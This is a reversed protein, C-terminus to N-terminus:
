RKKDTEGLKLLGLMTFFMLKANTEPPLKAAKSPLLRILCRKHEGLDKSLCVLIKLIAGKFKVLTGRFCGEKQM